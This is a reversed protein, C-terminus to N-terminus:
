FRPQPLRWVIEMFENLGIHGEEQYNWRRRLHYEKRAKNYCGHFQKNIQDLWQLFQSVNPEEFWLRMRSESTAYKQLIKDSFRSAHNDSLIVVPREIPTLGLKM